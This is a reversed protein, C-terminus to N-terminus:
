KSSAVWPFHLHYDPHNNVTNPWILKHLQSNDPATLLEERTGVTPNQHFLVHLMRACINRVNTSIPYNVTKCRGGELKTM